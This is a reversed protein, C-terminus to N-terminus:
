ISLESVQNYKSNGSEETYVPEEPYDKGTGPVMIVEGGVKLDGKDHSWTSKYLWMRSLDVPFVPNHPKFVLELVEGNKPKFNGIGLEDKIAKFDTDHGVLLGPSQNSSCHSFFEPWGLNMIRHKLQEKTEGGPPNKGEALLQERVQKHINTWDGWDQDRLDPIAYVPVKIYQNIIEATHETRTTGTHAIFSPKLRKIIAEAKRAQERGDECLPAYGGAQVEKFKPALSGGVTVDTPYITIGHRVLYVTKQESLSLLSSM